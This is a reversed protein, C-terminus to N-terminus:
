QGEKDDVPDFPMPKTNAVELPDPARSTDVTPRRDELPPGVVILHGSAVLEPPLDVKRRTGNPAWTPLDEFGLLVPDQDPGNPWLLFRGPLEQREQPAGTVIIEAVISTVYEAATEDLFADRPTEVRVTASEGADVWVAETVWRHRLHVHSASLSLQVFVGPLADGGFWTAEPVSVEITPEPGLGWEIVVIGAKVADEGLPRPPSDAWAESLLL